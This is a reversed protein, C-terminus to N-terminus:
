TSKGRCNQSSGTRRDVANTTKEPQPKATATMVVPKQSFAPKALKARKTKVLGSLTKLVDLM